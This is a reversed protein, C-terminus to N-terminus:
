IMPTIPATLPDDSRSDSRIEPRSTLRIERFTRDFRRCDSDGVSFLRWFSHRWIQFFTSTLFHKSFLSTSPPTKVKQRPWIHHTIIHTLFRARGYEILLSMKRITRQQPKTLCTTDRGFSFRPFFTHCVKELGEFNNIKSPVKVNAFNATSRPRTTVVTSTKLLVRTTNM